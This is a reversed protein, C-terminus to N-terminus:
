LHEEITTRLRAWKPSRRPATTQAATRAPGYVGKLEDVDYNSFAFGSSMLVARLQIGLAEVDHM